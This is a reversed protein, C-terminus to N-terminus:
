GVSGGLCGWVHTIKFGLAQSRKPLSLGRDRHGQAGVSGKWHKGRWTSLLTDRRSSRDPVSSVPTRLAWSKERLLQGHGQSGM